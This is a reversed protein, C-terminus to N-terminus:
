IFILHLCYTEGATMGTSEYIALSVWQINTATGKLTETIPSRLKSIKVGTIM